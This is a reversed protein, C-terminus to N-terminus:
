CGNLDLVYRLVIVLAEFVHTTGDFIISVYKGCIFEKLWNIETELIFPILKRLNSSDSLSYVYEELLDRFGDIKSLPFGTKFFATLAKIHYLRTTEPLMERTPHHKADYEKLAKSM